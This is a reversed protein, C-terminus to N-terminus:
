IYSLRRAEAQAPEIAKLLEAMRSKAKAVTREMLILSEPHEEMVMAESGRLVTLDNGIQECVEGLQQKLNSATEDFLKDMERQIRRRINTFINGYRMQTSMIDHMRRKTETGSELACNRYTSLMQELIYSNYHDETADRRITRLKKMLSEYEETLRYEVEGEKTKMIRVFLASGDLKQIDKTLKHLQAEITEASARIIEDCGDELLGWGTTMSGNMGMLLEANWYRSGIAQTCYTGNKRCFAQYSTHHWSTWEYSADLAARDFAAKHTRMQQLIQERLYNGLGARSLDISDEIGKRLEESFNNSPLQLSNNKTGASLWLELSQVLGKLQIELFHNTARFQARAPISHCFRRLHPIGSGAIALAHAERGQELYGQYDKNAVCFIDLGGSPFLKSYAKTLRERIDANRAQVFLYKYRVKAKDHEDVNKERALNLEQKASKVKHPALRKGPGCYTKEAESEDINDAHTCIIALNGKTSNLGRGLYDSVTSHVSEDSVVRNINAVVFVEDCSFLYRQAAKVRALNIDRYGPLDALIVGTKLVQASLYVRVIKTFPWLGKTMFAGTQEHCQEATEATSSWKGDRAGEPWELSGALSRLKTLIRDFAGECADNLYEYTTEARDGFVGKLTALALTSEREMTKYDHANIDQEKDVTFLQRYSWLLEHLEEYIEAETLYEVEITFADKHHKSRHRYETVFSTVAAGQDGKHALEPQDLLSNILSSKGTASDGVLGITRTAPSEFSELERASRYLKYLDSDVKHALECQELRAAIKGALGVGKKLAEQFAPDFYPESPPKEDKVDYFARDQDSPAYIDLLRFSASLDEVFQRSPSQVAESDTEASSQFKRGHPTFTPEPTANYLGRFTFADNIESIGFRPPQSPPSLSCDRLLEPFLRGFTASKSPEQLSDGGEDSALTSDSIEISPWITNDQSGDDSFAQTSAPTDIKICPTAELPARM